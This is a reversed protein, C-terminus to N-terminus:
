RVKLEEGSGDVDLFLVRQWGVPDGGRERGVLLTRTEQGVVIEVPKREPDGVEKLEVFAALISEALTQEFGQIARQGRVLTVPGPRVRRGGPFVIMRPPSPMVVRAACQMHCANVQMSSVDRRAAVASRATAPVSTWGHASARRSAPHEMDSSRRPRRYPSGPAEM